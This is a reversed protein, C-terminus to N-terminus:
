YVHLLKSWHMKFYVFNAICKQINKVYSNQELIQIKKEYTIKQKEKM